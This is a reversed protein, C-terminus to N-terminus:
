LDTYMCLISLLSTLNETVLQTKGEYIWDPVGNAVVNTVGDTTIPVVAAEEQGASAKYYINGGYVYVFANGVGSWSFYDLYVPGSQPRSSVPVQDLSHRIRRTFLLPIFISILILYLSVCGRFTLKYLVTHTTYSAYTSLHQGYMKCIYLCM